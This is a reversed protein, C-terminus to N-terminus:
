RSGQKLKYDVIAGKIEINGKLTVSFPKEGITIEEKIIQYTGHERAAEIMLTYKGQAIPKGGDDKGDWVLKYKGPSRTAASVTRVLDTEDVLMRLKDIKSWRKLDPLWRLGKGTTQLWLALTKVPFEDKDEIWVAVYPRRYGRAENAPRNIELQVTLEMGAIWPKAKEKAVTADKKEQAPPQNLPAIALPASIPTVVEFSPWRSSAIRKGGKEVLLCAAGPISEILRISEGAPLVSVITALADAEACNSAIVTSGLIHDAPQGTRPDIIHSFFRDGIAFGRRYGGSTALAKNKLHVRAIAPANEADATPDAIEIDRSAQGIVVLDGGIQVTASIAGAAQCVAAARDIIYGKALADLTFPGEALRYATHKAADLKWGKRSAAAVAKAIDEGAPLQNKKEADKWVRSVSQISTNFAGSSLDRYRECLALVEFLEASVPLDGSPQRCWRSFESQSDYTSLISRMREIEALIRGEVEVAKERSSVEIKLDLSTGLIEDHRFYVIEHALVSPSFLFFSLLCLVGVLYRNVDNVHFPCDFPERQNGIEFPAASSGQPLKVVCNRLFDGSFVPEGGGRLREDAKCSSFRTVWPM